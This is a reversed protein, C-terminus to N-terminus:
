RCVFVEIMILRDQSDSQKGSRLRDFPGSDNRGKSRNKELSRLLLRKSPRVTSGPM